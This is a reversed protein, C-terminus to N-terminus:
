FVSLSTFAYYMSNVLFVFGFLFTQISSKSRGVLLRQLVRGSRRGKRLPRPSQQGHVPPEDIEEPVRYGENARAFM